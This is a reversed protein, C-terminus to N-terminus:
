SDLLWELRTQAVANLVDSKEQPDNTLEYITFIDFNDTYELTNQIHYKYILSRLNQPVSKLYVFLCSILLLFLLLLLILANVCVWHQSSKSKYLLQQKNAWLVKYVNELMRCKTNSLSLWHSKEQAFAAYANGPRGM